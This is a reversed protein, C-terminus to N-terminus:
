PMREGVLPEGNVTKLEFKALTREFGGVVKLTVTIEKEGIKILNYSNYDFGRLIGCSVSGAHVIVINELKWCHPIHRHGCLVMNVNRNTLIELFDGADVVVVRERGARPIPILHHHLFVVKLKGKGKEGLAKDVWQRTLKGIQGDDIDPEASNLGMFLIKEELDERVTHIPGIIKEFRDLGANRADHNGPVVLVPPRLLSIYTKAEDYEPKLGSNTIDGTIVVVDPKIKNIENIAQLLKERLFYPSGVHIDSLHAIMFL